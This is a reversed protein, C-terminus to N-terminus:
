EIVKNTIVNHDQGYFYDYLGSYGKFIIKKAKSEPIMNESVLYDKTETLSLRVGTAEEIAARIYHINIIKM